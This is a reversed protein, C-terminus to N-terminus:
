VDSDLLLDLLVLIAAAILLLESKFFFFVVLLSKIPPLFCFHERRVALPTQLSFFPM